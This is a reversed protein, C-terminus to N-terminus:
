PLRKARNRWDVVEQLLVLGAGVSIFVDALNFVAFSWDGVYFLIYDVVHGRIVRDILNGIAGAVILSFGVRAIWQNPETRVALWIVLPLISLPILLLWPEGLWDLMSFAVGTNQTRFIALFPLMENFEHLTFSAEVLRKVTYDAAIALCVTAIHFPSLWKM